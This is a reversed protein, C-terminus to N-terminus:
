GSEGHEFRASRSIQYAQILKPHFPDFISSWLYACPYLTNPILNLGLQITDLPFPNPFEENTTSSILTKPFNENIYAVDKPLLFLELTFKDQRIGFVSVPFISFCPVICVYGDKITWKGSKEIKVTPIYPTGFLVACRETSQPNQEKYLPTPCSVIFPSDSNTKTECEVNKNMQMAKLLPNEKPNLKEIDKPIFPKVEIFLDLSKLYFDPLYWGFNKGLDFGELEYEWEIELADFFVAWRAELRSRFKYGKYRTEIAKITNM